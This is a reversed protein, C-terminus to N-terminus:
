KDGYRWGPAHRGMHARAPRRCLQSHAAPDAGAPHKARALSGHHAGVAGGERCGLCVRGRSDEFLAQVFNAADGGPRRYGARFRQGDPATPQLIQLGGRTGVWYEGNPRPLISRVDPDPLGDAAGFLAFREDPVHQLIGDDLVLWVNELEGIGTPTLLWVRGLQDQLVRLVRNDCLGDATSLRQVRWPAGPQRTLHLLGANTACWLNNDAVRFVSNVSQSTVESPLKESPLVQGTAADLVVLGRTTAVWLQRTSTLLCLQNVSDSPLGQQRTRHLLQRNQRPDLGYLGDGATAVWLLPQAAAGVPLLQRVTGHARWGQPGVARVRGAASVASV